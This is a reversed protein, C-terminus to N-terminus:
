LETDNFFYYDEDRLFAGGYGPLRYSPGNSFCSSCSGVQWRWWEVDSSEGVAIAAEQDMVVRVAPAAMPGGPRSVWGVTAATSCAMLIALVAIRLSHNGIREM